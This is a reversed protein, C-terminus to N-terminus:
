FKRVSLRSGDQLATITGSGSTRQARIRLTDGHNCNLFLSVSGTAGMNTLRCYMLVRTGPIEVGNNELWAQCQTRASTGVILSVGFHVKFYGSDNVTVEGNSISYTESSPMHEADIPVTTATTVATGGTSDYGSFVHNLAM